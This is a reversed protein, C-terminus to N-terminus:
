GDGPHHRGEGDGQGDNESSAAGKGDVRTEAYEPLCYHELCCWSLQQEDMSGIRMATLIVQQMAGVVKMTAQQEKLQMAASNLQTKTVHM